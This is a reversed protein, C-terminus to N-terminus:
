TKVAEVVLFIPIEKRAMKKMRKEALTRYRSGRSRVDGDAATAKKIKKRTAIERLDSVLFGAKKLYKFYESFPRYYQTAKVGSAWLVLKKAHPILYRAVARTFYNKNGIKVRVWKQGGEVFIPHVISFILRGGSKVVRGAEKIVGQADAVDMLMMSSIVVDFQRSKIDHLNAADSVFYKIGLPKASEKEKAIRIFKKSLDVATMKAGRKALIRSLYGNGCGIELIRKNKVGGLVDFVVPDIDYKQHWVGSDGSETDWWEAVRDWEAKPIKKVM